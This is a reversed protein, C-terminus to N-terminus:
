KSIIYKIDEISKGINFRGNGVLYFVCYCDYNKNGIRKIFKRKRFKSVSIKSNLFISGVQNGFLIIIKPNIIEIKKRVFRFM